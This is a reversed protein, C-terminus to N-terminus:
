KFKVQLTQPQTYIILSLDLMPAQRHKVENYQEHMIM